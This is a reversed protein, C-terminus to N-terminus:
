RYHGEGDAFIKRRLKGTNVNWIQVNSKTASVLFRSDATFAIGNVISTGILKRDVKTSKVNRLVIKQDAGGTAMWRGNLSFAM